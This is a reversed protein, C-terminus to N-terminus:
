KINLYLGPDVLIGNDSIQFIIGKVNRDNSHDVQGIEEGKKVKDGVKHPIDKLNLYISDIGDGHYITIFKGFNESNGIEKVEGDYISKVELESSKILVRKGKLDDYNCVEGNIPSISNTFLIDKMAKKIVKIDDFPKILVVENGNFDKDLFKISNTDLREIMNNFVDKYYYNTKCVNKIYDYLIVGSPTVKLIILILATISCFIINRTTISLIKVKENKKSLKRLNMNEKEEITLDNNKYYNNNTNNHYNKMKQNKGNIINKYYDNYERSYNGM